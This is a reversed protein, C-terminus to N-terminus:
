FRVKTLFTDLANPHVGFTIQLLDSSNLINKFYNFDIEFDSKIENSDNKLKSIENL